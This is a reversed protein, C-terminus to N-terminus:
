RTKHRELEKLKAGVLVGAALAWCHDFDKKQLCEELEGLGALEKTVKLSHELADDIEKGNEFIQCVAGPGARQRSRARRPLGWRM